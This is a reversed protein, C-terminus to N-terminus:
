YLEPVRDTKNVCNSLYVYLICTIYILDCCFSGTVRLTNSAMAKMYQNM